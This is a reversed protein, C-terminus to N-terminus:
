DAPSETAEEILGEYDALTNRWEEPVIISTKSQYDYAVLVAKGVAFEKGSLRDQISYETEISKQGIRSTRVAVQISQEFTIPQIYRCSQEALIIGIQDFDQARWLGLEILYRARAQEMFTFYRANNVHRQADIDGYRIEIPHKFRFDLM